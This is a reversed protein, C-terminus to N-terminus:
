DESKMYGRKDFNFSKFRFKCYLIVLQEPLIFLMVFFLLIGIVIAIMIDVDIIVSTRAIYQIVFVLGIGCFVAAPIYSKTEFRGRLVDKKSGKRYHGNRLLIAFRVFTAIFILLGLLLLIYTFNLLSESTFSMDEGELAILFLACIFFSVSFLNQSVLISLLYQIKGSRKYVAPIAYILSLVMIGATIWLHVKLIEDKYPYVTANGVMFYELAFLLAQLFVSLILAGALAPPSQRGSELPGRLVEFDKVTLKAFM